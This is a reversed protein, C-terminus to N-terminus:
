ASCIDTAAACRADVNYRQPRLATPNLIRQANTWLSEAAQHLADTVKMRLTQLPYAGPARKQASRLDEQWRPERVAAQPPLSPRGPGPPHAHTVTRRSQGSRQLFGPRLRM